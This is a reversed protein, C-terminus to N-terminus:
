VRSNRNAENVTIWFDYVKGIKARLEELQVSKRVVSNAGAEYCRDLEARDTVASLMVVPISATTSDGRIAKLVAVGDMRAMRLDLIVLRPLRRPDRGTHAGRAHLYDLADEGSVAVAIRSRECRTELALVILERHDPDDEVVLIIEEAM